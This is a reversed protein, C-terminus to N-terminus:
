MCKGFLGCYRGLCDHHSSCGGLFLVLAAWRGNHTGLFAVLDPAARQLTTTIVSIYPQFSLKQLLRAVLLLLVLSQLMDHQVQLCCCQGEPAACALDAADVLCPDFVSGVTNVTLNKCASLTSPAMCSSYVLALAGPWGYTTPFRLSSSTSVGCKAVCVPLKV